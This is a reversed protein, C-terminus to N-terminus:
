QAAIGLPDEDFGEACHAQWDGHEDGPLTSEGEHVLTWEVELAEGVQRRFM